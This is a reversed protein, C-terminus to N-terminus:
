VSKIRFQRLKSEECVLISIALYYMMFGFLNVNPNGFMGYVIYYLQVALSFELYSKGLDSVHKLIVVTRIICILIPVFFLLFGFIGQECLVQLYVNHVDSYSHTYNIFQGVGCGFVINDEFAKWAIAYLNYRNSSIDEGAQYESISNFYRGLFGVQSLETLNSMAYYYVVSGLIFLIIIFILTRKQNSQELFKVLIPVFISVILISRKGALVLGSVIAIIFLIKALQGKKNNSFKCFFLVYFFLFLIIIATQDLQYTFGALGHLDTMWSVIISNPFFPVVYQIYLEPFCLQFYVGLLGFLGSFLFLKIPISDYMREANYLMLLVTAWFFVYQFTTFLFYGLITYLIYPLWSQIVIHKFGNHRSNSSIFFFFFLSLFCAFRMNQSEFITREFIFGWFTYIILYVLSIYIKKNQITKELTFTM